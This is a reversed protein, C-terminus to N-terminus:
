ISPNSLEAGDSGRLYKFRAQREEVERYLQQGAPWRYVANVPFEMTSLPASQSRVARTKRYEGNVPVSFFAASGLPSCFVSGAEGSLWRANLFQSPHVLEEVSTFQQPDKDEERRKLPSVGPYILSAERADQADAVASMPGCHFIQPDYEHCGLPYGGEGGGTMVMMMRERRWWAAQAM